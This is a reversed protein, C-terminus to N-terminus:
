KYKLKGRVCKEIKVQCITTLRVVVTLRAGKGLGQMTIATVLDRAAPRMQKKMAGPRGEAAGRAPM